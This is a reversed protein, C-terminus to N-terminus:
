DGLDALVGIMDVDQEGVRARRPSRGEVLSGLTGEVLHHVQVDLADEEACLLVVVRRLRSVGWDLNAGRRRLRAERESGERTTTVAETAPIPM